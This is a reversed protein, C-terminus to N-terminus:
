SFVSKFAVPLLKDGSTDDADAMKFEADNDGDDKSTEKDEPLLKAGFSFEARSFVMVQRLLFSFRPIVDGFLEEIEYKRSILPLLNNKLHKEVMEVTCRAM